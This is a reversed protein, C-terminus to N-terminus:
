VERLVTKGKGKLDRHDKLTPPTKSFKEILKKPLKNISSALGALSHRWTVREATAETSQTVAESVETTIKFKDGKILDKNKRQEAVQEGEQKLFTEFSTTSNSEDSGEQRDGRSQSQQKRR